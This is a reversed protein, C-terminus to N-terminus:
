RNEIGLKDKLILSGGIYNGVIMFVVVCLKSILLVLSAKPLEPYIKFLSYAFITYITVVTTNISGHILGKKMVDTKGEPIKVLDMVGFIAALWGLAVGGVMAYFAAQAYSLAGTYYYLGYCVLEMPFLASPFHILMVHIPHNLLKM